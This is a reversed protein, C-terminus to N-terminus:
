SFLRQLRDGLENAIVKKNFKREIFQKSNRALTQQLDQSGLILEIANVFEEASDAIILDQGDTAGITQAVETTVVTSLGHSMADLVKIPIGFVSKLPVVAIASKAIEAHIDLVEGLFITRTCIAIIESSPNRGAVKFIIQPYKQSLVSMVERDFFKVAEINPLYDMQGTFILQFEQKANQDDQKIEIPQSLVFLKKLQEAPLQSRKLERPSIIGALSAVNIIQEEANRILKAERKYIWSKWYNSKASFQEWKISDFDILDWFIKVKHQELIPILYDFASSFIVVLDYEKSAIRQNLYSEFSSNQFHASTLSKGFLLHKVMRLKSAIKSIPFVSVQNLLRSENTAIGRSDLSVLDLEFNLDHFLEIVRAVRIRDGKDAPYPYNPSVILVKM